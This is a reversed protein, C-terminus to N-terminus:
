VREDLTRGSIAATPLQHCTSPSRKTSRSPFPMRPAGRSASRAISAGAFKRPRTKPKWRPM